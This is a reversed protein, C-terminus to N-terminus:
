VSIGWKSSLEIHTFRTVMDNHAEAYFRIEHLRVNSGGLQWQTERRRSSPESFSARQWVEQGSSNVGSYTKVWTTDFVLGFVYGTDIRLATDNPPVTNNITYTNNSLRLRLGLGFMNDIDINFGENTGFV